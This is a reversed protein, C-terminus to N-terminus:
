TRSSSSESPISTATMRSWATGDSTFTRTCSCEALATMPRWPSTHARESSTAKAGPSVRFVTVRNGTSLLMTSGSSLRVTERAATNPRTAVPGLAVTVRASSSWATTWIM